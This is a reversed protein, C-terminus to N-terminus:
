VCRTSNLFKADVAEDWEVHVEATTRSSGTAADVSFTTKTGDNRLVTPDRLNRMADTASKVKDAYMGIPDGDNVARSAEEWRQM